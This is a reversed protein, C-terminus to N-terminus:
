IGERFNQKKYIRTILEEKCKVKKKKEKENKMNEKEKWIKNNSTKGREEVEKREKLEKVKNKDNSKM